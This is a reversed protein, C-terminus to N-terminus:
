GVHTGTTMDRKRMTWLGYGVGGAVLAVGGATLGVDGKAVSGGGGASPGRRPPTTIPSMGGFITITTSGTLASGGSGCTATVTWDSGNVADSKITAVGSVGTGKAVPSLQIGSVFVSSSASGTGPQICTPLTITVQQGPRASAPQISVAPGSLGGSGSSALGQLNSLGNDISSLGNDVSSLGNDVSSVGNSISSVGNNVAGVVDGASAHAHNMAYLVVAAGGGVVAITKLGFM